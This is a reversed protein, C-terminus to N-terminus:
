ESRETWEYWALILSIAIEVTRESMVRERKRDAGNSWMKSMQLDSLETNIDSLIRMKHLGVSLRTREARAADAYGKEM